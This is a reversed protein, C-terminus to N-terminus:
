PPYFALTHKSCQQCNRRGHNALIRAIVDRNPLATGHRKRAVDGSYRLRFDRPVPSVSRCSLRVEPALTRSDSDTSPGRVRKM